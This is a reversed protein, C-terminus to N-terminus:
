TRSGLSLLGDDGDEEMPLLPLCESLSPSFHNRDGFLPSSWFGASFCVSPEFFNFYKCDM